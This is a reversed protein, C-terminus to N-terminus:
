ANTSGVKSTPELHATPLIRRLLRGTRSSKPIRRKSLNIRLYLEREALVDIDANGLNLLRM